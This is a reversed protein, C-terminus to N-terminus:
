DEVIGFDEPDLGFQELSYHKYLADLPLEFEKHLVASCELIADRYKETLEDLDHQEMFQGLMRLKRYEDKLKFLPDKFQDSYRRRKATPAATEKASYFKRGDVEVVDYGAPDEVETVYM